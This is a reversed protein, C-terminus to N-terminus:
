ASLTLSGSRSFLLILVPLSFIGPEPHFELRRGALIVGLAIISVIFLVIIFWLHDVSFDGNIGNPGSATTISTFFHVFADPFSGTFGTNFKLAFYAIVPCVFVLGALFPVLLKTVREQLYVSPMRKRLSFNASMGAICFLLPMIWPEVSVTILHAFVSPHDSLVYYSYWGACFVFAAHTPFLVMISMWRLNDIYHLRDM